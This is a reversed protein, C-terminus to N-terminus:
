RSDIKNMEARIAATMAPRALRIAPRFFPEAAMRSTGYEIAAAHDSAVSVTASARDGRTRVPGASVSAALEGTEGVPARARVDAALAAAAAAVARRAHAKASRMLAPNM